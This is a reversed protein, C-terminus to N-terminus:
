EDLLDFRIKDIIFPEIKSVIGRLKLRLLFQRGSETLVIESRMGYSFESPTVYRESVPASFWEVLGLEELKTTIDTEQDILGKQLL